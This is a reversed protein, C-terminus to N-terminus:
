RVMEVRAGLVEKELNFAEDASNLAKNLSDVYDDNRQKFAECFAAPDGKGKVLNALEDFYKDSNQQKEEMDRAQEEIAQFFQIAAIIVGAVTAVAIVGVVVGVEGTNDVFNIPDNLTYAYLNTQGGGFRIPDKATWRGTETDYDRAGFRVLGTHLDYIGGAFGFPQFGPNTDNVVNGFEDYDMRQVIEGTASNIVLRPSGLHDSLIRYTVGDKVMYSPMNGKEGYVFRSVVNGSGDLEAIPNLQDKYLFGQTLQGNVKKGIRRNQGDNLYDITIDGPLIVQMLNGLVDYHYQTTVGGQAKAILEGNETYAYSANGYTILRDQADYTASFMGSKGAHGLRNGNEDYTYTSVVVGNEKVTELRGALDYGYDYVTSVGEINEVKRTIRGLKDRDYQTGLLSILSVSGISQNLFSKHTAPKEKTDLGHVEEYLSLSSGDVAVSARLLFHNKYPDLDSWDVLIVPRRVTGIIMRAFCHYVEQYEGYLHENGILRDARKICHKEKADSEIARGLGTVSLRREDIAALVTVALANRRAAHMWPCANNLIKHSVKQAHM